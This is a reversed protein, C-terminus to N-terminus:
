FGCTKVSVNRHAAAVAPAAPAGCGVHWVYAAARDFKDATNEGRNKPPTERQTLNAALM